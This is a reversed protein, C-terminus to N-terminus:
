MKLCSKCFLANRKAITRCEKAQRESLPYMLTDIYPGGGSATRGSRSLRSRASNATFCPTAGLRLPTVALLWLGTGFGIQGTDVLLDPLGGEPMNHVEAAPITMSLSHLGPGRKKIKGL